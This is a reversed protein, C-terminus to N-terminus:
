GHRITERRRAAALVGAREPSVGRAVRGAPQGVPAVPPLASVAVCVLALLAAAGGVAATEM